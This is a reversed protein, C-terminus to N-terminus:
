GAWLGERKLTWSLLDLGRFGPTSDNGDLKTLGQQWSRLLYLGYGSLLRCNQKRIPNDLFKDAGVNIQLCERACVKWRGRLAFKIGRFLCAM